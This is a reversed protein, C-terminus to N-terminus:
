YDGVQVEGLIRSFLEDIMSGPSFSQRFCMSLYASCGIMYLAGLPSVERLPLRSVGAWSGWASSM